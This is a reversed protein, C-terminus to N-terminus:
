WYSFIKIHINKFMYYSNRVKFHYMNHQELRTVNCPNSRRCDYEKWDYEEPKDPSCHEGTAVSRVRRYLVFYKTSSLGGDFGSEWKLTVYTPGVKQSTLSKPAEPAGKPQLRIQPRINGLSNKVKCYYDGYDQSKINRILLVSLYVDNNDTTTTIEYHGESSMQLPATNSGYFWQFEPKPYAQVRCSIEANEMLDYAVKKQQKISIPEDSIHAIFNIIFIIM